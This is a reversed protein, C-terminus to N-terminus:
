FKQMVMPVRLWSNSGTNAAIAKDGFFPLLCQLFVALGYMVWGVQRLGDTGVRVIILLVILGILVAATQVVINCPYGSPFRLALVQRLVFLGIACIGLVPVLLWYDLQYLLGWARLAQVSSRKM